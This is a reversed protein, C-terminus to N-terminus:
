KLVGEKSLVIITKLIFEDELTIPYGNEIHQFVEKKTPSLTIGTKLLVFRYLQYLRKKSM